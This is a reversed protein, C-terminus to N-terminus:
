RAAVFEWQQDYDGNAGDCTRQEIPEVANNNWNEVSLCLDRGSLPSLLLLGFQPSTSIAFRQNTGTHCPYVQLNDGSQDLGWPVDICLGSADNVIRPNTADVSPDRYIWWRQNQGSNCPFYNIPANPLVDGGPVDLCSNVAPWCMGWWCIAWTPRTKIYVEQAGSLRVQSLFAFQAVLDDISEYSQALNVYPALAFSGNMGSVKEIFGISGRHNPDPDVCPIGIDSDDLAGNVPQLAWQGAGNSALLNFTAVVEAESGNARHGLNSCHVTENAMPALIPPGVDLSTNVQVLAADGVINVFQGTATTINVGDFSFQRVTISGPAVNAVVSAHTLVLTPSVVLGFRKTGGVEVTAFGTTFQQIDGSIDQRLEDNAPPTEACAAALGVTLLLTRRM